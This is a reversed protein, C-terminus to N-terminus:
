RVPIWPRFIDRYLKNEPEPFRDPHRKIYDVMIADRRNYMHDTKKMLFKGFLVGGITFMIHNQFSSYWPRSLYMNRMIPTFFGVYGLVMHGLYLNYFERKYHSDRRLLDIAWQAPCTDGSEEMDNVTSM